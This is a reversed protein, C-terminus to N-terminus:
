PCYTKGFVEDMRDWNVAKALKVLEHDSDIIQMLEPRFLDMQKNKHPSQKPKM